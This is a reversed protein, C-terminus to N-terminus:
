HVLHGFIRDLASSGDIEEALETLNGVVFEGLPTLSHRGDRLNEVVNVNELVKLHHRVSSVSRGSTQALGSPSTGFKPDYAPGITYVLDLRTAHSTVAGLADFVSKWDPQAKRPTLPKGKQVSAPGAVISGQFLM